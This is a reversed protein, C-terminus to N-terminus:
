SSEYSSLARIILFGLFTCISVGLRVILRPLSRLRDAGQLARDLAWMLPLAGLMEAHPAFRAYRMALVLFVTTGVLVPVWPLAAMKRRCLNIVLLVLGLMPPGLYIVALSLDGGLAPFLPQLEAVHDLWIRRVLPDIPAWPGRLVDPFSVSLFTLGIASAGVGWMLRQPMSRNQPILGVVFYIAALVAALAVHVVSIRDYEIESWRSGSILVAVATCGVVWLSVRARVRAPALGNAIWAIGLSLMSIGIVALFETSVWLGISMTLGLFAEYKSPGVATMLRILLGAALTLLLVLTGHHDARGVASYALVALQSAVVLLSLQRNGTSVLPRVAWFFSVMMGALVLPGVLLAAAFLARETEAFPLFPSAVSVLLLDFPRTWHQTEGYPVNSREIVPNFFSEGALLERARVLHMYSDTDILAGESVEPFRFATFAGQVAVVTVIAVLWIRASSINPPTELDVM